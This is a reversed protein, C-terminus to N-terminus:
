FHIVILHSVQIQISIRQSYLVNIFILCVQFYNIFNSTSLIDTNIKSVTNYNHQLIDTQLIKVISYKPCQSILDVVWEWISWPSFFIKTSNSCTQLNSIVEFFIKLPPFIVCISERTIDIIYQELNVVTNGPPM